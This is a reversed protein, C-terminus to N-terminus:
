TSRNMSGEVSNHLVNPTYSVVSMCKTHTSSHHIFLLCCPLQCLVASMVASMVAPPIIYTLCSPLCSASLTRCWPEAAMMYQVVESHQSCSAPIIIFSLIFLMKAWHLCHQLISLIISHPQIYLTAHHLFCCPTAQAQLLQQRFIVNKKKNNNHYIIIFRQSHYLLVVSIDKRFTFTIFEITSYSSCVLLSPMMDDYFFLVCPRIQNWSYTISKYLILSSTWHM